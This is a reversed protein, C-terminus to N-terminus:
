LSLKKSTKLNWRKCEIKSMKDFVSCFVQHIRRSYLFLVNSQINQEFTEVRPLLRNSLWCYISCFFLIGCWGTCLVTSIMELQLQQCYLVQVINTDFYRTYVYRYLPKDWIDLANCCIKRKYSALNQIFNPVVKLFTSLTVLSKAPLRGPHKMEKSKFCDKSKKLEHINSNDQQFLCNRGANSTWTM